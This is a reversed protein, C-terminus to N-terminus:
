SDLGWAQREVESQAGSVGVLHWVERALKREEASMFLLVTGFRPVRALSTLYACVQARVADGDAGGATLVDRFTHLMSGLLTADLSSQFLAPLAPPPIENLLQWRGEREKEWRKTFAFLTMPPRTSTSENLTAAPKPKAGERADGLRQLAGRAQGRRFLAKVNRADLRLVTSCDREADENKGLKLYAAARNLPYTANAPDAVIAASYHGVATAYDGTKFAANGKDKEAQGKATSM